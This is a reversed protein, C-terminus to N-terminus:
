SYDYSGSSIGSDYQVPIVPHNRNRDNLSGAQPPPPPPQRRTNQKQRTLKSPYNKQFNTFKDPKPLSQASCFMSKFRDEFDSSPQKISSVRTPLPPALNSGPMAKLQSPPAPHMPAQHQPPPPPPPPAPARPPPPRIPASRMSTAVARNPPPPPAINMKVCHNGPSSSMVMQNLDNPASNNRPPPPPPPPPGIVKPNPKPATNNAVSLKNSAFRSSHSEGVGFSQRRLINPPKSPPPPPACQPPAPNSKPPPPPKESPPPRTLRPRQLNTQSASRKVTSHKVVSDNETNTSKFVPKQSQPPPAPAPGKVTIDDPFNPNGGFIGSSESVESSASRSSITKLKSVPSPPQSRSGSLQNVRLSSNTNGQKISQIVMALPPNSNNESRPTTPRLKPIGQAFLGGPPIIPFPGNAKNSEVNRKAATNSSRNGDVAPASRDNTEAKKLKIGKHIQTLLAKRDPAPVCNNSSKGQSNPAGFSQKPLPPPAPPPPPPM